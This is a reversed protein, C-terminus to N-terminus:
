FIFNSADFTDVEFTVGSYDRVLIIDANVVIMVGDCWDMVDIDSFRNIGAYNSLDIMDNNPRLDALEDPTNDEVFRFVDAGGGGLLVDSGKGDIIVDAGSNGEILDDGDMGDIYDAERSGKMWDAGASGRMVAELASMDITIQTFGHDTDSSVLLVVEGDIVEVALGSANDLTIDYTDALTGMHSLTGSASLELVSIGDDSGAVVLFSRDDYVFSEIHTANQFRTDLTDLLHEVEHLEGDSAVSFVTLSSTGASAMVLYDVGEVSVALLAQPKSFGSGDAPAVDDIFQLAGNSKIRFSSLGADFASAAFLYDTGEVKARAMASVDGLFRKSTDAFHAEEVLDFGAGFRYSTLGDAGAFVFTGSDIEIALTLGLGAMTGASGSPAFDGGDTFNYIVAQDEYRTAPILGVSGGLTVFTMDWVTRTGSSDTFRQTDLVEGIQGGTFDFSTLASDATSAVVVTWGRDLAVLDIDSVGQLLLKKTDTVTAEVQFTLM